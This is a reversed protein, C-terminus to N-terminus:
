SRFRKQKQQRAFEQLDVIRDTEDVIEGTLVELVDELTAVGSVGGYEDVVVALHQQTKQFVPLLADARKTEPVFHVTHLFEKVPSEAHGSVIATLLEDKLAMGIVDDPTDEVVVLRSHQSATITAQAERLTSDAKLYTMTVRPTMLDAATYDNLDFIRQIMVSEDAEIMGEKQGIRALLKIEAEDTTYRKGDKIFPATLREVVWVVPTLLRTLTQVPRAMRLAITEAYSEGLTKPLIESLMIVLFTLVGSFLGLWQDGFVHAAINGVFISGGINAINNLIVITTIPRNMKERIALLALVAPSPNTHALRRVKFISVSFLAAETGSCLGSAILVFLVAIILHIM